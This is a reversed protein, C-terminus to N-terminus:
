YGGQWSPLANDAAAALRVCLLLLSAMLVTWLSTDNRNKM